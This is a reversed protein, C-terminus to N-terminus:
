SSAEGPSSHSPASSTSAMFESHSFFENESPASTLPVRTRKKQNFLLVPLCGPPSLPPCMDNDNCFFVGKIIRNMGSIHVQTLSSLSSRFKSPLSTIKVQSMIVWIVQRHENKPKWNLYWITVCIVFTWCQWLQCKLNFFVNISYILQEFLQKNQNSEVIM